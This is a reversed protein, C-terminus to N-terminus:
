ASEGQVRALAADIAGPTRNLLDIANADLASASWNFKPLAERNMRQALKLAEILEAVALATTVLRPYEQASYADSGALSLHLAAHRRIVALVDLEKADRGSM